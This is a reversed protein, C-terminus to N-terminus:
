VGGTRGAGHLEQVRPLLSRQMQWLLRDIKPRRSGHPDICDPM